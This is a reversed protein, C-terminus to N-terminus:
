SHHVHIPVEMAARRILPKSIVRTDKAYAALLAFECVKNILRPIGQSIKYIEKIAAKKFRVTPQFGSCSLRHQIYHATQPPNLPSLQCRIQIRQSLQRLSQRSLIQDLEPQGVLIIQLLKDKETELNSLLRTMELAQESLNQAEDIIVVANGRHQYNNLLFHNLKDLLVNLTEGTAECGFDRNIGQILEYTSLLPNVVLSTKVTPHLRKILARISLTKGTGVEGTLVMFGKRDQIGFSLERIVGEHQDSPYLLTTDPTVSFPKSALGFFEQYM